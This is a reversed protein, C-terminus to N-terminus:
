FTHMSSKFITGFLSTFIKWFDVFRRLIRPTLLTIHLFNWISSGSISSAVTYLKNVTVVQCESNTYGQNWVHDQRDEQVVSSFMKSKM